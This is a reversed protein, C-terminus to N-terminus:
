WGNFCTPCISDEQGNDKVVRILYDCIGDESLRKLPVFCKGCRLGKEM